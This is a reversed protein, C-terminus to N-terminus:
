RIPKMAHGARCRTHGSCRSAARAQSFSLKSCCLPRCGIKRQRSTNFDNDQFRKQASQNKLDVNREPRPM